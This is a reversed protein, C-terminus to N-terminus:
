QVERFNPEVIVKVSVGSSVTMGQLARRWKAQVIELNHADTELELIVQSKYKPM